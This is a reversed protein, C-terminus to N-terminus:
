KPQLWSQKKDYSTSFKGCESYEVAELIQEILKPTRYFFVSVAIMQIAWVVCLFSGCFALTTIALDM